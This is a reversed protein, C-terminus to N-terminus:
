QNHKRIAYDVFYDAGYDAAQQGVLAAQHMFPRPATGPHYVSRRFYTTGGITFRLFKARVASIVHPRTGTELFRAAGMAQVFGADGTVQATISQRMGGTKDKWLTTGKASAKSADVASRLAMRAAQTLGAMLDGLAHQAAQSDVAVSM